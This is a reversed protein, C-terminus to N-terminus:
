LYVSNFYMDETLSRVPVKGLQLSPLQSHKTNSPAPKRTMCLSKKDGSMLAFSRSYTLFCSSEQRNPLHMVHPVLLSHELGGIDLQSHGHM